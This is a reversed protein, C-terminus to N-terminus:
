GGHGRRRLLLLLAASSSSAAAAGRQQAAAVRECEEHEGGDDARAEHQVQQRVARAPASAPVAVRQLRPVAPAARRPPTHRRPAQATALPLTKKPKCALIERTARTRAGASM